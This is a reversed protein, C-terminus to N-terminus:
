ETIEETTTAQSVTETEATQINVTYGEIGPFSKIFATICTKANEDAKELLGKELASKEAEDKFVVRMDNFDEGSIKNFVSNKEDFEEYSKDDVSSSLIRSGPLTVNIIKSTDDAEVAVQDMDIGAKIVGDYSCILHSETFPIKLGALEKSGKEYKGVRTYYYEESALEGINKLGNSLEVSINRVETDKFIEAGKEESKPTTMKGVAFGIVFVVVAVILVFVANGARQGIASFFGENKNNSM